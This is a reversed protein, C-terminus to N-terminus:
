KKFQVSLTLKFNTQQLYYLTFLSSIINRHTRKDDHELLYM